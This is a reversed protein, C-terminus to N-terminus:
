PASGPLSHYGWKVHFKENDSLYAKSRVDSLREPIQRSTAKALVTASIISLPPPFNKDGGESEKPIRKIKWIIFRISIVVM